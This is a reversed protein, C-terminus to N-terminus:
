QEEELEPKSITWLKVTWAYQRCPVYRGSYVSMRCVYVPCVCSENNMIRLGYNQQKSLPNYKQFRLDHSNHGRPSHDGALLLLWGSFAPWLMPISLCRESFWIRWKNKLDTKLMKRMEASTWGTAADTCPLYADRTDSIVVQSCEDFIWTPFWSSIHIPKYTSNPTFILRRMRFILDCNVVRSFLLNSVVRVSGHM